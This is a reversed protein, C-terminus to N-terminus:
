TEIALVIDRPPFIGKDEMSAMQEDSELSVLCLRDHRCLFSKVNHAVRPALGM